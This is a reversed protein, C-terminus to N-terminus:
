LLKREIDSLFERIKDPYLTYNIRTGQKEIAVFQEQLLCNMHHSVTAPTISLLDAIDQGCLSRERLLHLIELRRKDSLAKLRSLISDDTVGSTELIDTLKDFLVGYIMQEHGNTVIDSIDLLGVTEFYFISPFIRLKKADTQIRIQRFFADTGLKAMREKLPDICQKAYPQLLNEKQRLLSIAEKLIASAERYYERIHHYFLLASWRIKESCEAQSLYDILEAENQPLSATAFFRSETTQALILTCLIKHLTEDDLQEPDMQFYLLMAICWGIEMQEGSQSGFYFRIRDVPTTMGAFVEDAIEEIPQFLEDLSGAPLNHLHLFREKYCSISPLLNDPNAENSALKRSLLGACELPENLEYSFEIEM